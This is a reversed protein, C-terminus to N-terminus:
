TNQWANFYSFRHKIHKDVTHLNGSPRLKEMITSNECPKTCAFQYHSHWKGWEDQINVKTKAFSEVDCAAQTLVVISLTFM